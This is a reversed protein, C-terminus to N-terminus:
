LNHYISKISPPWFLNLLRFAYEKNSYFPDNVYKNNSYSVFEVYMLQYTISIVIDYKWPWHTSLM